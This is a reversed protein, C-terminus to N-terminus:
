DNDIDQQSQAELKKKLFYLKYIGILANWIENFNIASEGRLRNVFVTPRESISYGAYYVQLLIESLSIFGKGLRGCKEVVLRAARLSYIRYGNTYDSVPLRLLSKSLLNASKSFIKRHLPWNIIQSSKHYRSAILLDINNNFVHELHSLIENPSHSFDADMEVFLDCGKGLLKNLGELVASGRGMKMGRHYVCVTKEFYVSSVARCTQQDISDDVIIIEAKSGLVNQISKILLVINESENYTPIVVGLKLLDFM